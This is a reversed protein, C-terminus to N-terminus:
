SLLSAFHRSVDRFLRLYQFPQFGQFVPAPPASVVLKAAEVEDPRLLTFPRNSQYGVAYGHATSSGDRCLHRSVDGVLYLPEHDVAALSAVGVRRFAPVGSAARTLEDSHDKVALGDSVNVGHGMVRPVAQHVVPRRGTHDSGPLSRLRVADLRGVPADDGPSHQKVQRAKAANVPQVGRLRDQRFVQFGGFLRLSHLDSLAINQQGPRAVVPHTELTASRALRVRHSGM